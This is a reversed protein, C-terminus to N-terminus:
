QRLGGSSPRPRNRKQQRRYPHTRNRTSANKCSLRAHVPHSSSMLGDSVPRSAARQYLKTSRSSLRTTPPNDPHFRASRSPIHRM